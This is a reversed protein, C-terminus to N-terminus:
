DFDFVEIYPFKQKLAAKIRKREGTNNVHKVESVPVDEDNKSSKWSTLYGAVSVVAAGRVNCCSTDLHAGKLAYLVKKEEFDLVGEELVMYYGGIGRIEENLPYHTYGPM